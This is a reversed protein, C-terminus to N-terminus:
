HFKTALVILKDLAGALATIQKVTDAIKNIADNADALRQTLAAIKANADSIEELDDPFQASLLDVLRGRLRKALASVKSRQTETLRDDGALDFLRSISGALRDTALKPM